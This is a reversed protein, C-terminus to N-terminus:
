AHDAASVAHAAGEARSRVGLKRFVRALVTEITKERLFLRTAIERNM